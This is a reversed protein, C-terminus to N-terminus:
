RKRKDATMMEMDTYTFCEKHGNRLTLVVHPYFELIKIKFREIIEENKYDRRRMNVTQGVSYKKMVKKRQLNITDM